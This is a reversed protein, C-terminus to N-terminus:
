GRLGTGKLKTLLAEVMQVVTRLEEEVIPEIDDCGPCSRCGNGGNDRIPKPGLFATEGIIMRVKGDPLNYLEFKVKEEELEQTLKDVAQYFVSDCRKQLDQLDAMEGVPERLVSEPPADVITRAIGFEIKRFENSCACVMIGAPSRFWKIGWPWVRFHTIAEAVTDFARGLTSYTGMNAYLHNTKEVLTVNFVTNVM